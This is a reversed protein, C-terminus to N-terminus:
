RRRRVRSRRPVVERRQPAAPSRSKAAAVFRSKTANAREAERLAAELELTREAVRQELSDNAAQLAAAGARESTVDTFSIVFGHDPMEQGFVHLFLGDRTSLDLTLPLRNDGNAVWDLLAKTGGTDHRLLEGRFHEILSALSAGVRLLQMPPSLLARLRANWGVLRQGADFICIGQNIHDLTARILRAQEDLLKDREQRELQILETIDTQMIATGNGPTRQESVQIWKDGDINVNFNVSAKRHNILRHRLWNRRTQGDPLTLHPSRACRKAYEVFKLGPSLGATIDPLAIGFRANCMVLVDNEDFLAFGERVAELADYLDARAREAEHMAESLRANSRNLLELTQELDLTRSRVQEELVIARRFHAYAEGSDDTEREVRRMLAETVRLLKETQREPPDAPDILSNKM